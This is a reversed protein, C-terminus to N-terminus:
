CNYYLHGLPPAAFLFALTFLLCGWFGFPIHTVWQIEGSQSATPHVPRAPIRQEARGGRGFRNKTRACVLHPLIM